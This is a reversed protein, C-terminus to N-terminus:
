SIFEPLPNIQRTQRCIASIFEWYRATTYLQDSLSGEEGASAVLMLLRGDDYDGDSYGLGRGQRGIHFVMVAFCVGVEDM